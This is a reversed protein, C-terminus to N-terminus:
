YTSFLWQNQEPITWAMASNTCNHYDYQAVLNVIMRSRQNLECQVSPTQCHHNFLLSHKGALWFLLPGHHNRHEYRGHVAHNGTSELVPGYMMDNSSSWATATGTHNMLSVWWIFHDHGHWTWPHLQLIQAEEMDQLVMKHGFFEVCWCGRLHLDSIHRKRVWWTALWNVFPRERPASAATAETEKHLEVRPLVSIVHSTDM